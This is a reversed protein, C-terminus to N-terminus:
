INVLKIRKKPRPYCKGAERPKMRIFTDDDESVAAYGTM